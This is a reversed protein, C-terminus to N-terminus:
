TKKNGYFFKVLFKFFVVSTFISSIIGICHVVAFGKIPGSGLTLLSMGVILATLNSDLITNWAKKFGDNIAKQPISGSRLEERIRENILVNADISIGVTLAIAAIGPLTITAQLISLCAVILLINLALGIASFLGLLHYYIVMFIVIAIFGGAISKLGKNINTLGLSPGIIKEEIVSMEAALMGSRLLLSIDTAQQYNMSGTIQINGNPIQSRIVPATVIEGKGNEFLIIALRKNINDRTVDKFIKSGKNDLILNVSAQGTNHDRGPQANQINSSNLIPQSYVLIKQKNSDYFYETGIPIIGKSILSQSIKSDDVLRFELTATRGLIEKAKTIDQLGPLQVVISDTGQQQIIPESVGLGNIRNHLTLLNQKLANAKIESITQSDFKCELKNNPKIENNIIIGNVSQSITKIIINIDKTQSTEIYVSKANRYVNVDKIGNHKLLTKIDMVLGDYRSLIAEDMHVKILLHVGGRLDLGLVMPKPSFMGMNRMWKPSNSTINPTVIYSKHQSNRNLTKEIINNALIQDDTNNLRITIINAPIKKEVSAKKYPINHKKLTNKVRELINENVLVHKQASIIQISPSVGYLNQVSYLISILVVVIIFINERTPYLNM